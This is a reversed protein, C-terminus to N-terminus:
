SALPRNSARSEREGLQVRGTVVAVPQERPKDGITIHHLVVQLPVPTVNAGDVGIVRACMSRTPSSGGSRSSSGAHGSSVPESM